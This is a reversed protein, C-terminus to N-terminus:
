HGARSGRNIALISRWSQDASMPNHKEDVPGGRHLVRDVTVGGDQRLRQRDRTDGFPVDPAGATAACRMTGKALNRIAGIAVATTSGSATQPQPLGLAGSDVTRRVMVGPVCGNASGGKMETSPRVEPVLTVNVALVCSKLPSGQCDLATNTLGADPTTLRAVM